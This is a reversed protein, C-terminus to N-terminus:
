FTVAHHLSLQVQLDTSGDYVQALLGAQVGLNGAARVGLGGYLRTRDYVPRDGRGPGRLFLEASGATYVSGRRVADGTLPVAAGLSLRLRTQFPQDEVWREELRVRPSLKVAGVSRSGGVDQFLRHEVTSGAAEGAPEGYVYGYGQTLTVRGPLLAQVGVRGVVQDLDSGFGHGRLQAEAILGVPLEATRFTGSYQAWLGLGGATQAHAESGALLLAFLISRM